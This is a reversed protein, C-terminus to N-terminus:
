LRSVWVGMPHSRQGARLGLVLHALQTPADPPGAWSFKGDTVSGRLAYTALDRRWADPLPLHEALVSLPAVDLRDFTM